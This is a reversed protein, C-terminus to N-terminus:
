TKPNKLGTSLKNTVERRVRAALRDSQERLFARVEAPERQALERLAWSLAKVVMDDRDAVHLRAIRLTRRPDGQGGGVKSNLRVTAVLSLRRQWRDNSKAWSLIKRDSIKGERWAPGALTVGFLDVSGWDGLGRSLAEILEDNMLDLGGRHAGLLEYALMRGAFDGAKLLERATRLVLEAPEKALLQSYRRRVARLAPTNAIELQGLERRIARALEPASPM